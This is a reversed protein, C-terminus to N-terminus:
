SSATETNARTYIRPALVALRSDIGVTYWQCRFNHVLCAPSCHRIACVLYSNWLKKRNLSTNHQWPTIHWKALFTATFRVMYLWASHEIRRKLSLILADPVQWFLWAVSKISELTMTQVCIAYKVSFTAVIPWLKTDIWCKQLFLKNQVIKTLINENRQVAFQSSFGHSLAAAQL